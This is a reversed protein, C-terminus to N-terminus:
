EKSILLNHITYTGNIVSSNVYCNLSFCLIIYGQLIASNNEIYSYQMRGSTGPNTIASNRLNTSLGFWPIVTRSSLPEHVVSPSVNYSLDIDIKVSGWKNLLRKILTSTFYIADRHSSTDSSFTTTINVIPLTVSYATGNRFATGSYQYANVTNNFSSSISSSGYNYLQYFNIAVNKAMIGDKIIWMTDDLSIAGYQMKIQAM